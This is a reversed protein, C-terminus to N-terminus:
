FLTCGTKKFEQIKQRLLDETVELYESSCTLCMYSTSARNYLKKHLAIEDHTLIRHCHNCYEKM